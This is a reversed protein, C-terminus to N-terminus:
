AIRESSDQGVREGAETNEKATNKDTADYAQAVVDQNKPRISPDAAKLLEVSDVIVQAAEPNTKIMPGLVKAMYAQVSRLIQM